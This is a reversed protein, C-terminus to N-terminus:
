WAIVSGGMATDAYTLIDITWQNGAKGGQCLTNRNLIRVTLTACPYDSLPPLTM